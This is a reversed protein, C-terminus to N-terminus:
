WQINSRLMLRTVKECGNREVPVTASTYPSAAPRPSFFPADDENNHLTHRNSTFVDSGGEFMLSELEQKCQTNVPGSSINGKCGCASSSSSPSPSTTMTLIASTEMGM